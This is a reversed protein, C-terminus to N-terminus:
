LNTMQFGIEAEIVLVNNLTTLDLNHQGFFVMRISGAKEKVPMRLVLQIGRSDM